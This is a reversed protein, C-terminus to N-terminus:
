FRSALCPVKRKEVSLSVLSKLYTRPSVNACVYPQSLCISIFNVILIQSFLSTYNGLLSLSSSMRNNSLNNFSILPVDRLFCVKQFFETRESDLFLTVIVLNKPTKRTTLFGSQLEQNKLLLNGTKKCLSSLKLFLREDVFDAIFFIRYNKVVFSEFFYLGTKLYHEVLFPNILHFLNFRYGILLSFNTPDTTSFFSNVCIKAFLIASQVSSYKESKM